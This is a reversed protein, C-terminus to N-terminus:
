KYNKGGIFYNKDFTTKLKRRVKTVFWGGKNLFDCALKLAALTLHALFVFITNM